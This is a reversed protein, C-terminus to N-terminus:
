MRQQQPMTLTRVLADPSINAGVAALLTAANKRRQGWQLWRWAWGRELRLAINEAVTLAAFLAPQQYIAAIGLARSLQPDIEAIPKGAVEITGCDPQVAGTIIKM